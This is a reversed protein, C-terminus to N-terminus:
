PVPAEPRAYIVVAGNDYIKKLFLGFKTVALPQYTSAELPGVYVYDINYREMIVRAENWDRTLYLTALDQVRTGQEAWSGRWQWEHFDWGLVAPLGTHTAIRGYGSYSSGSRAAEAIVGRPLGANIWQIAAYDDPATRALHAAGDLRPGDEANFGRTITSTALIPYALGLLVPVLALTRLAGALSSRRPWLETVAYAGALGWLIWGAFYFKFITNMRDGFGDRLYVFEPALALLGAIGALM